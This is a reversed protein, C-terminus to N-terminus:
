AAVLSEGDIVAPVERGLMSILVKVRDRTTMGEYILLKGVLPGDTAKVRAGAKFKEEQHLIVYGNQERSKIEDIIAPPVMVPGDEGMLLYSVGYTGRISYWRDLIYTFLYRPFLPRILVTKDLRIQKFRPCYSQYGQQRLNADAINECNPKTMVVAWGRM